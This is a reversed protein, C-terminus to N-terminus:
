HTREYLRLLYARTREVRRNILQLEVVWVLLSFSASVIGTYLLFPPQFLMLPVAQSLLYLGGALLLDGQQDAGAQGSRLDGVPQADASFGDFGVGRADTM